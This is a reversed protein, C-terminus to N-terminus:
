FRFCFVNRVWVGVAGRVVSIYVVVTLRIDTQLPFSPFHSKNIFVSGKLIGWAFLCGRPHIRIQHKNLYLLNRVAQESRHLHVLHGFSAYVVGRSCFPDQHSFASFVVQVSSVPARGQEGYRLWRETSPRVEWGGPWCGYCISCAMKEREEQRPMPRAREVEWIGEWNRRRSRQVEIRLGVWIRSGERCERGRGRASTSLGKGTDRGRESSM